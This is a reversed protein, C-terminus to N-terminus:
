PRPQEGDQEPFRLFHWGKSNLYFYNGPIRSFAFLTQLYKFNMYSLGRPDSLYDTRTSRPTEADM